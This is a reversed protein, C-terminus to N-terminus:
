AVRELARVTRALSVEDELSNIRAGGVKSLALNAAALLDGVLMSRPVGVDLSSLLHQLKGLLRDM